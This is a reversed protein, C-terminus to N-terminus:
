LRAGFAQSADLVQGSRRAHVQMSEYFFKGADQKSRESPDWNPANQHYHNEVYMVQAPGSAAANSQLNSARRAYGAAESDYAAIMSQRRSLNAQLNMGMQFIGATYDQFDSEPAVIEPGAEGLLTVEPRSVRGGVARAKLSSMLGLFAVIFGLAIAWGVFPIGAHAKTFGSVAAGTNATTETTSAATKAASSAIEATNGALKQAQAQREWLAKAKQITWLAAEQAGIKMLAQAMAMGFTAAGAQLAQLPSMQGTVMGNLAALYGQEMGSFIDNTFTKFQEFKNQGKALIDDLASMAGAWGDAQRNLDQEQVRIDRLKAQHQRELEEKQGNIKARESAELNAMALAENLSQLEIQYREEEIRRFEALAEREGILRRERAQTVLSEEESLEGLAEAKDRERWTTQLQKDEENAKKLVERRAKFYEQTAKARTKESLDQRELQSKWFTADQAKSWEVYQGQAMKRNEYSEQEHALFAKLQEFQKDQEKDEKSTDGRKGGGKPTTSAKGRLNPDWVQNLSMGLKEFRDKIEDAGAAFNNKTDQWWRKAAAGAGKFDGTFVKYLVDGM